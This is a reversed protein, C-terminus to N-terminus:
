DPVVAVADIEALFDPHALAPVFCMTIAPPPSSRGWEQQFVAFAPEVPQGEVVHINWKIVHALEAGGAALARRLNAFIQRIQAEIDGRGVIEENEDVANQGGVYLTRNPGSVAVAQTFAPNRPLGEPDLHTVPCM